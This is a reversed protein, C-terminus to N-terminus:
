LRRSRASDVAVRLAVAGAVALVATVTERGSKAMRSVEREDKFKERAARLNHRAESKGLTNKETKFKRRAAKLEKGAQGSKIRKRAADITANREARRRKRFAVNRPDRRVGWRMGKVGFHVIADELSLKEDGFYRV